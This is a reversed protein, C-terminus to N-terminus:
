ESTVIDISKVNENLFKEFDTIPMEVDTMQGKVYLLKVKGTEYDINKVNIAATSNKVSLIVSKNPDNVHEQLTKVDYMSNEEKKGVTKKSNLFMGTLNSISDWTKGILGQEEAFKYMDVDSFDEKDIIRNGNDKFGFVSPLDTNQQNVTTPKKDGSQHPTLFGPTTGRIECVM